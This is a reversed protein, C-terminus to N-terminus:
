VHFVNNTQIIIIPLFVFRQMSRFFEGKVRVTITHEAYGIRNTATCTYDGADEFSAKPIQIMKNFNKVKMRSTVQLDDGDKTWTIHPTPRSSSKFLFPNVCSSTVNKIHTIKISFECEQLLVSWSCNRGRCSWYQAQHAQLLCCNPLQRSWQM